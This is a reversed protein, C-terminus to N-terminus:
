AGMSKALQDMAHEVDAQPTGLRAAIEAPKLDQEMLEALKDCDIRADDALSAERPKTGLGLALALRRRTRAYDPAVMPYDAPLSWRQRYADPTTAHKDALHRKLLSYGHGCELCYIAERCVSREMAVAPLPRAPADINSLADLVGRIVAPVEAAATRTSALHAAVIQTTLRALPSPDSM